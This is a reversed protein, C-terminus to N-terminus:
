GELPVGACQPTGGSLLERIWADMRGRHVIDGRKWSVELWTRMRRASKFTSGCRQGSVSGAEAGRSKPRSINEACVVRTRTMRTSPM